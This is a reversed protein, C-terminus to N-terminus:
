RGPAQGGQRTITFPAAFRRLWGARHIFDAAPRARDPDDARGPRVPWPLDPYQKRLAALEPRSVM